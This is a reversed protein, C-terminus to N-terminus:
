KMRWKEPNTGLRSAQENAPIVKTPIWSSYFREIDATTYTYEETLYEQGDISYQRKIIEM